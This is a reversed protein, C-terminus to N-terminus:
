LGDGTCAVLTGSVVMPYPTNGQCCCQYSSAKKGKGLKKIAGAPCNATGSGLPLYMSCQPVAVCASTSGALVRSKSSMASFGGM